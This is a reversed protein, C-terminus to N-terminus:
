TEKHFRHSGEPVVKAGTNIAYQILDTGCEPCYRFPPQLSGCVPCNGTDEASYVQVWDGPEDEYGFSNGEYAAEDCRLMIVYYGPASKVLAETIEDLTLRGKKKQIVITDWQSHDGLYREVTVGRM